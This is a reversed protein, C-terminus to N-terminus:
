TLTLNSRLEPYSLQEFLQYDSIMNVTNLKVCLM